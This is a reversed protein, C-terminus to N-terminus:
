WNGFKAKWEDMPQFTPDAKCKAECAGLIEDDSMSFDIPKAHPQEIYWPTSWYVEFRNGEPDPFYVSLAAGHDIPAVAPVGAKTVRKYMDRVQSFEQVKFSMQNVTSANDAPKGDPKPLDSGMAHATGLAIAILSLYLKHISLPKM